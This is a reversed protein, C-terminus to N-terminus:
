TTGDKRDSGTGAAALSFLPPSQTQMEARVIQRVADFLAVVVDSEEDDDSDGEFFAETKGTERAIAALLEPRPLHIGKELKILHQRSTGIAAALRDHSLGAHKRAKRIQRGVRERHAQYITSM